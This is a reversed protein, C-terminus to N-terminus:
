QIFHVCVLFYFFSHFEVLNFTETEDGKLFELVGRFAIDDVGKGRRARRAIKIEKSYPIEDKKTM